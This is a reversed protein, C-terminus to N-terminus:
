KMDNIKKIEADQKKFQETYYGIEDLEKKLIDSLFSQLRRFESIASSVSDFVNIAEVVLHSGDLYHNITGGDYRKVKKSYVLNKHVTFHVNNVVRQPFGIDVLSVNEMTMCARDDHPINAVQEGKFLILRYPNDNTTVIFYKM